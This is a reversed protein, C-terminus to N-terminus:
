CRVRMGRLGRMGRVCLCAWGSSLHGPWALSLSLHAPVTQQTKNTGRHPRCSTTDPIAGQKEDAGAAPGKASRPGMPGQGKGLVTPVNGLEHVLRERRQLPRARQDNPDALLWLLDYGVGRAKWPQGRGMGRREGGRGHVVDRNVTRSGSRGCLHRIARQRKRINAWRGLHFDGDLGNLACGQFTPEIGVTMLALSTLREGTGAGGDPECGDPHTLTHTPRELREIVRREGYTREREHGRGPHVGRQPLSGASGSRTQRPGM